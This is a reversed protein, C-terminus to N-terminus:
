SLLSAGSLSAPKEGKQQAMNHISVCCNGGDAGNGSLFHQGYFLSKNLWQMCGGTLISFLFCGLWNKILFAVRQTTHKRTFFAIMVMGLPVPVYMILRYLRYSSLMLFCIVGMGSGFLAAHLIRGKHILNRLFIGTLFLNLVDMLFSNVFLVDLYIEYICAM